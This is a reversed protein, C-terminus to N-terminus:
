KQSRISKVTEEIAAIAKENEARNNQLIKPISMIMFPTLDGNFCLKLQRVAEKLVYIVEKQQDSKIRAATILPNNYKLEKLYGYGVKNRERESPHYSIVLPGTLAPFQYGPIVITLLEKKNDPHQLLTGPQIQDYPPKPDQGSQTGASNTESNSYAIRPIHRLYTDRSLM